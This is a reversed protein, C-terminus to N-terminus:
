DVRLLLGSRAAATWSLAVSSVSRLRAVASRRTRSAAPSRASSTTIGSFHVTSPWESTIRAAASGSPPRATLQARDTARSSPMSRIAPEITSCTSSWAFVDFELTWTPGSPSTRNRARAISFWLKTTAAFWIPVSPAPFRAPPRESMISGHPRTRAVAGSASVTITASSSKSRSPSTRRRSGDSRWRRASTYSHHGGGRDVLAPHNELSGHAHKRPLAEVGTADRIDGVLRADGVTEDVVVEGGLLL